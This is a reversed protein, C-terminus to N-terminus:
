PSGRRGVRVLHVSGDARVKWSLVSRYSGDDETVGLSYQHGPLTGWVGDPHGRMAEYLGPGGLLPALAEELARFKAERTLARNDLAESAQM